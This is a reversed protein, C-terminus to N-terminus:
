TREFFEVRFMRWGARIYRTAERNRWGHLGDNNITYRNDIWLKSGDDSILSFRYHGTRYFRVRGTWKVAFHNARAFGPWKRGTNRCYVNMMFLGHRYVDRVRRAYNGRAGM